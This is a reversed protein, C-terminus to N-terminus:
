SVEAPAADEFAPGDGFAGAVVGGVLAEGDLDFVVGDFVVGELPPNRVALVARTVDEDPVASGVLGHRGLALARHEVLPVHVHAEEAFFQDALPM